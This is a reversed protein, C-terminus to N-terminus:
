CQFVYTRSGWLDIIILLFATKFFLRFLCVVRLLFLFLPSPVVFPEFSWHSGGDGSSGFVSVGRLGLTQFAASIKGVQSQSLYM